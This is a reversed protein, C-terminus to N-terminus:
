LAPLREAYPGLQDREAPGPPRRGTALLLADADDAVPVACGLLAEVTRRGVALARAPPRAVELDRALDLQHVALEVAWTALFDGTTLVWGQFALVGDELVAVRTTLADTVRRLPPLAGTPSGSASAIRRLALIGALEDGGAPQTEWYTAADRDPAGPSSGATLLCSAVEELGLRVHTVVDVVCWGWCRSAALLARDDLPAVAGLFGDLADLFAARGEDHPVSLV